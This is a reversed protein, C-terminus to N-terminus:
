DAQSESTVEAPVADTTGMRELGELAELARAREQLDKLKRACSRAAELDHIIPGADVVVRAPEIMAM